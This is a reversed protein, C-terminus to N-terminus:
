GVEVGVNVGEFVGEFENGVFEGVRGGMVEGGGEGLDKSDGGVLVQGEGVLELLGGGLEEGGEDGLGVEVFLFDEVGEERVVLDVM